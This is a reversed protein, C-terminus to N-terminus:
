VVPMIQAKLALTNDTSELGAETHAINNLGFHGLKCGESFILPKLVPCNVGRFTHLDSGSTVLELEASESSSPFYGALSRTNSLSNTRIASEGQATQLSM